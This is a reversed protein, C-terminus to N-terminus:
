RFCLKFPGLAETFHIRANCICKSRFILLVQQGLM